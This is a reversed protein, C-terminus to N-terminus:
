EPSAGTASEGPIELVKWAWARVDFAPDADRELMTRIRAEILARLRPYEPDASAAHVRELWSLAQARRIHEEPVPTVPGAAEEEFDIEGTPELTEADVVIWGHERADALAAEIKAVQEETPPPVCENILWPPVGLRRAIQTTVALPTDADGTVLHVYNTESVGLTAALAGIGLGARLRYAELPQNMEFPQM